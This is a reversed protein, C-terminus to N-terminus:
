ESRHRNHNNLGKSQRDNKYSFQKNIRKHIYGNLELITEDDFSAYLTQIEDISYLDLYSKLEPITIFFLFM